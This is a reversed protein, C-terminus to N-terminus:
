ACTDEGHPRNPLYTLLYADCADCLMTALPKGTSLGWATGGCEPCTGTLTVPFHSGVTIGAYEQDRM